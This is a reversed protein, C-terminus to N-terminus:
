FWPSVWGWFDDWWSGHGGGNGGGIGSATVVDEAQLPLLETLPSQYPIRKDMCVVERDYNMM